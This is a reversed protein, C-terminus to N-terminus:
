PIREKVIRIGEFAPSRGAIREQLTYLDIYLDFYLEKARRYYRERNLARYLTSDLSLELAQDHAHHLARNLALALALDGNTNISGLLEILHTSGLDLASARASAITLSRSRDRARSITDEYDDEIYDGFISDPDITLSSDIQRNREREADSALRRDIKRPDAPVEGIWTFQTTGDTEKTWYGIPPPYSSLIPNDQMETKTPIRFGWSESQRQTLWECFAVADSPRVGLIPERAQGPPFHYEKWHDPQHYKGQARMEDIFVQYEACTILSDDIYTDDDIRFMSM